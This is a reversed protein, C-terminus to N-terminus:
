QYLENIHNFLQICQVDSMNGIRYKNKSIFQKVDAIHSTPLQKLLARKTKFQNITGNQKIYFKTDTDTFGFGESVGAKMLKYDKSYVAFCAIKDDSIQQIFRSSIEPFENKIFYKNGLWFANIQDQNIVIQMGTGNQTPSKLVLQDLYIDYKLLVPKYIKQHFKIQSSIFNSEFLYAHGHISNLNPFYKIGRYLQQDIGYEADLQQILKGANSNNQSSAHHVMFFVVCVM